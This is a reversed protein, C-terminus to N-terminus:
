ALAAQYCEDCLIFWEARAIERCSTENESGSRYYKACLDIFRMPPWEHHAALEDTVATPTSDNLEIAFQQLRSYVAHDGVRNFWYKSNSYDPERRHMIGHWYSGESDSITQSIDHSRDLYDYWLWLGSLCCAAASVNTITADAFLDSPKLKGLPTLMSTVESGPGLEPLRDPDILEALPKGYSQIQAAFNM